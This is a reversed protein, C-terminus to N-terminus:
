ENAAKNWLLHLDTVHDLSNFIVIYYAEMVADHVSVLGAGILLRAMTGLSM